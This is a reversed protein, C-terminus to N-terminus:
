EEELEEASVGTGNPAPVSLLTFREGKAWRRDFVSAPLLIRGRYPDLLLINELPEDYGLVLSYHFRDGGEETMVVLPRGHDIHHYLGSPSRDLAGPFIFVEMGHKELVARLEKLGPRTREAKRLSAREECGLHTRTRARGARRKELRSGAVSKLQMREPAKLPRYRVVPIERTRSPLGETAGFGLSALLALVLAGELLVRM